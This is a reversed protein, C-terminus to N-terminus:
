EARIKLYTISKRVGEPRVLVEEIQSQIRVFAKKNFEGRFKNNFETKAVMGSASARIYDLMKQGQLDVADMKAEVQQQTAKAHLAELLQELSLRAQETWFIGREIHAQTITVQAQPNGGDVWDCVAFLIAKKLAKIAVRSYNGVKRSTIDDNYVRVALNHYHTQYRRWLQPAGPEIVAWKIEPTTVAYREPEIVKGKDDKVAETIILNPVPLVTLFKKLRNVLAPPPTPDIDPPAYNEPKHKLTLECAIDFRSFTGDSWMTAENKLSDVFAPLTTMGLISMYVNDIVHVGGGKTPSTRIEECDYGQLLMERAGALYDRKNWTSFLGGIEEIILSRTRYFQRETEWRFKDEVTSNTNVHPIMSLEREFSEPTGIAPIIPAGVAKLLRRVAQAVTSKHVIGPPAVILDFENPFVPGFRLKLAVRRYILASVVFSAALKLMGDPTEDCILKLWNFVDTVLRGVATNEKTPVWDPSNPFYGTFVASGDIEGSAALAMLMPNTAVVKMAASTGDLNLAREAEGLIDAWEGCDAPKISNLQGNQLSRIFALANKTVDTIPTM